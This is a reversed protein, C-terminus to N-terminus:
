KSIGLSEAEEINVIPQLEGLPRLKAFYINLPTTLLHIFYSSPILAIFAFSIVFHFIWTGLHLGRLAPETLGLALFARGLGWGVPSWRGWWPPVVALRWAETGFGTVNIVFLLALLAAFQPTPDIRAPRLVFRRWLALGLGVVFFAGFLDLSLEYLLYFPGRLLKFGLPLTIDYDITALVPALFLVG